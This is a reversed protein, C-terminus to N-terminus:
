NSSLEGWHENFKKQVDPNLIEFVEFKRNILTRFRSKIDKANPIQRMNLELLLKTRIMLDVMYDTPCVVDYGGPQSQVLSYMVDEDDYFDVHVKVNFEKGFDSVIEPDLCDVWTYVNLVSSSIDKPTAARLDRVALGFYNVVILGWLMLFFANSIRKTKSM